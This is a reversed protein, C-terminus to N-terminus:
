NLSREIREIWDDLCDDGNAFDDLADKLGKVLKKQAEKERYNIYSKLKEKDQKSILSGQTNLIIEIEKRTDNDM